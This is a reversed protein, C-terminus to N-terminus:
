TCVIDEEKIAKVKKRSGKETKHHSNLASLLPKSQVSESSANPEESSSQCEERKKFTPM